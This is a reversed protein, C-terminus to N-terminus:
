ITKRKKFVKQKAELNRNEQLHANVFANKFCLKQLPTAKEDSLTDEYLKQMEEIQRHQSRIKAAYFIEGTETNYVEEMGIEERLKQRLYRGLPLSRSGHYLSIPVDGDETLMKAGFPSKIAEAIIPVATAGIGPRNSQVSFEPPRGELRPDDESTMKKITYGCVYQISDKNVDGVDVHGFPWSREIHLHDHIHDCNFIIAHYHPRSSEDGYEGVAFYRIKKDGMRSRLRKFFDRLHSKDLAGGPPLYENAYTLTVFANSHYCLSELIM